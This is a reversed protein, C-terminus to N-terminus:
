EGRFQAVVIDVVFPLLPSVYVPAEQVVVDNSKKREGVGKWLIVSVIM